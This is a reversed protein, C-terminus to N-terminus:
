FVKVLPSIPTLNNLKNLRKKNLFVKENTTRLALRCLGEPLRQQRWQKGAEGVKDV